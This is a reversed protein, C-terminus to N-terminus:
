SGVRMEELRLIDNHEPDEPIVWVDHRMLLPVASPGGGLVPVISNKVGIRSVSTGDMMLPRIFMLAVVALLLHSILGDTEKSCDGSAKVCLSISEYFSLLRPVVVGVPLRCIM